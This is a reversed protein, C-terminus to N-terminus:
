KTEKKYFFFCLLNLDLTNAFDITLLHAKRQEMFTFVFLQLFAVQLKRKWLNLLIVKCPLVVVIGVKVVFYLLNLLKEQVVFKIRVFNKYKRGENVWIRNNKM